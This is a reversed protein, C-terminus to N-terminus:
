EKKVYLPASDIDIVTRGNSQFTVFHRDLQGDDREAELVWGKFQYRGRYRAGDDTNGNSNVSIGGPSTAGIPTNSNSTGTATHTGQPDSGTTSVYTFSTGGGTQLIGQYGSLSLDFTGDGSFHWTTKLTRLNDQNGWGDTREYIGNLREGPRAPQAIWGKGDTGDEGDPLSRWGGDDPGRMEYGNGSQAKRWQIWRRPELQRSVSVNLEDPPIENQYGTGDKLLLWTIHLDRKVTEGPNQVVQANVFVAAIDDDPVGQGPATRIARAAYDHELQEQRELLTKAQNHDMAIRMTQRVGDQYRALVGDGKVRMCLLRVFYGGSGAPLLMYQLVSDSTTCEQIALGDQTPVPPQCEDGEMAGAQQRIQLLRTQPSVDQLVEFWDDAIWIELKEGPNMQIPAFSAGQNERRVTWGDPLGEARPLGPQAEPNDQSLPATQAQAQLTQHPTTETTSSSGNM